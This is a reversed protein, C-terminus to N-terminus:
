GLITQGQVVLLPTKIKSAHNLPVTTGTTRAQPHTPIAMREYFLNRLPEWYPPISELLTILNSPRVIDVAAAYLDTYIYRRGAHCLGGYSLRGHNRHTESRCNGPRDDFIKRGLNRRGASKAWEKNVADPPFKQGYSHICSFNPTLVAYGRNALFQALGNLGM